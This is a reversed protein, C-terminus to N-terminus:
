LTKRMLFLIIRSMVKAWRVLIILTIDQNATALFTRLDVTAAIAKARWETDSDVDDGYDPQPLPALKAAVEAQTPQGGVADVWYPGIQYREAQPHQDTAPSDPQATHIMRITGAM